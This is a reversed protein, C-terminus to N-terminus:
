RVLSRQGKAQRTVRQTTAWKATAFEFKVVRRTTSTAVVRFCARLGQGYGSLVSFGSLGTSGQWAGPSAGGNQQAMFIQWMIRLDISVKEVPWNLKGRGGERGLVRERERDRERTKGTKRSKNEILNGFTSLTKTKTESHANDCPIQLTNLTPYPLIPGPLAVSGMAFTSGAWKRGRYEISEM